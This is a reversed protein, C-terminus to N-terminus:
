EACSTQLPSQLLLDLRQQLRPYGFEQLVAKKLEEPDSTEALLRLQLLGQILSEQDSPDVLVGLAGDKLADPSGDRNGALVPRGRVLAELYVIGFGEGTSPMAFADCAAYALELTPEDVRGLFTVCHGLGLSECLSELAPRDDGKGAILYHFKEGGKKLAHLANLIIRHGKYQEAAALRSVTLLVTTPNQLLPLLLHRAEAKGPIKQSPELVHNPFLIAPLFLEPNKEYLQDRTYRSVCLIRAAKAM